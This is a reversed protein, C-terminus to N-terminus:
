RNLATPDLVTHVAWDIDRIPTIPHYIFVRSITCTPDTFEAAIEFPAVLTTQLNLNSSWGPGFASLPIHRYRDTRNIRGEPDFPIAEATVTYRLRGTSTPEDLTKPPNGTIRRTVWTRLIDSMAERATSSPSHGLEDVAHDELFTRHLDPLSDPSGIGGLAYAATGRVQTDPDHRLREVLPPVATADGIDHLCGCVVWRVIVSEDQIWPLLTGVADSRYLVALAELIRCRVEDDPSQLLEAFTALVDAKDCALLNRGAAQYAEPKAFSERRAALFAQVQPLCNV